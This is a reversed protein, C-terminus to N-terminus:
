KIYLLTFYLFLSLIFSGIKIKEVNPRFEPVIARKTELNRGLAFFNMFNKEIIM